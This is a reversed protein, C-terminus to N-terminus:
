FEAALKQLGAADAGPCLGQKQLAEVNQAFRLTLRAAAHRDVARPAGLFARANGGYLKQLAEKSLGLGRMPTNEIRFLYKGDPALTYPEGEPTELFARTVRVRAASEDPDIPKPPQAILARSGIDTGYLIRNEFAAFFARAAPIDRALNTYLEIGPTLDVRVEGYRHLLATFRPLQASFFFFHALQLRLEPHRALVAFVQRYQEENNITEPGYFWGESKAYPNIRSADWFEEPDNVHWLIPVRKAEAWQWLPEWAATDFDPIPFNRRIDPKGELLKIGDCGAALLAEGQRVLDAGLAAADGKYLIYASRELSGLVYTSNQPRRLKCLLADPVTSRAGQQPICALTCATIGNQALVDDFRARGHTDAYHLHADFFEASM